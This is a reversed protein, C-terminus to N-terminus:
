NFRILDFCSQTEIYLQFHKAISTYNSEVYFFLFDFNM